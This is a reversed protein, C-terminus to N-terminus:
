GAKKVAEIIQAISNQRLDANKRFLNRQPAEFITTQRSSNLTLVSKM